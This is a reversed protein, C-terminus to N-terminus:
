SQARPLPSQPYAQPRPPPPPTPRKQQPMYRIHPAELPEPLTKAKKLPQSKNEKNEDEKRDENADKKIEERDEKKIEPKKSRLTSLVRRAADEIDGNIKFQVYESSGRPSFQKFLELLDYKNPHSYIEVRVKQHRYEAFIVAVHFDDLRSIINVEPYIIRDLRVGQIDSYRIKSYVIGDEMHMNEIMKGMYRLENMDLTQYMDTISDWVDFEKSMLNKAINEFSGTRRFGEYSWLVGKMLVKAVENSYKIKEAEFLELLWESISARKDIKNEKGFKTNRPNTDINVIPIDLLLTKNTTFLLGINELSKCGITIILDFDDGVSQLDVDNFEFKGNGPTIIFQIKEDVERWRVDQVNGVKRNISLIIEKKKLKEKIIIEKLDLVRKYEQPISKSTGISVEKENELIFRALGVACAVKDFTLIEPIFIIINNADEILKKM